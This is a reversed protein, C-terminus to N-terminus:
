AAEQNSLPAAHVVLNWGQGRRVEVSLGLQALAPRLRTLTGALTDSLPGGDPDAGFCMDFLDLRDIRRRTVLMALLQQTVNARGALSRALVTVGFRRLRLPPGVDMALDHAPVSAFAKASACVVVRM